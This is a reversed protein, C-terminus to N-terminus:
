RNAYPGSTKWEGDLNNQRRPRAYKRKKRRRRSEKSSTLLNEATVFSRTPTALDSCRRPTYDTESVEGTIESMVVRLQRDLVAELSAGSCTTFDRIHHTQDLTQAAASRRQQRSLAGDRLTGLFLLAQLRRDEFAQATRSLTIESQFIARTRRSERRPQSFSEEAAIRGLGGAPM